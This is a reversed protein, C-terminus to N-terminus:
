KLFIFQFVNRAPNSPYFLSERVSDDPIQVELSYGDLCPFNSKQKPGELDAQEQIKEKSGKAVRLLEGDKKEVAKELEQLRIQHLTRILVWFLTEM